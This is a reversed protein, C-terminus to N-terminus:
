QPRTPAHMRWLALRLWAAARRVEAPTPAPSRRATELAAVLDTLARAQQPDRRIWAPLAEGGQHAGILALKLEREDPPM